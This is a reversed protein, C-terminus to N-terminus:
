VLKDTPRLFSPFLAEDLPLSRSAALRVTTLSVKLLARRQSKRPASTVAAPTPTKVHATLGGFDGFSAGTVAASARRPRVAKFSLLM